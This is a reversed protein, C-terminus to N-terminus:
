ALEPECYPCAPDQKKLGTILDALTVRARRKDLGMVYHSLANFRMGGGCSMRCRDCRFSRSNISDALRILGDESDLMERLSTEPQHIEGAKLQTYPPVMCWPDFYVGGYPDIGISHRKSGMLLQSEHIDEGLFAVSFMSELSHHLHLDEFPGGGEYIRNMLVMVRAYEGPSLIKAANRAMRGVPMARHISFKKVGLSAIFDVFEELRAVNETTIVCSVELKDAMDPVDVIGRILEVTTAFPNSVQSVRRPSRWANHYDEFGDVSIEIVGLYPSVSGLGDLTVVTGNTNVGINKSGLLDASAELIEPFDHRLFPEGGGFILFHNVDDLGSVYDAIKTLGARVEVLSLETADGDERLSLKANVGCHRCALNCHDTIDWVVGFTDSGWVQERRRELYVVLGDVEADTLGLREQAFTRLVELDEVKGSRIDKATIAM